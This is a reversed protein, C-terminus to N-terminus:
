CGLIAAQAAAAEGVGPQLSVAAHQLLLLMCAKGCICCCRLLLILAHGAALTV